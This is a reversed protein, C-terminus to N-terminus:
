VLGVAAEAGVAGEDRPRRVVGGLERFRKAAGHEAISKCTFLM